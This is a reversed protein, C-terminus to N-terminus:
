VDVDNALHKEGAEGAIIERDFEETNVIPPLKKGGSRM